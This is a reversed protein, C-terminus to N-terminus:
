ALNPSFLLIIVGSYNASGCCQSLLDTEEFAIQFSVVHSAMDEFQHRIRLSMTASKFVSYLGLTAMSVSM